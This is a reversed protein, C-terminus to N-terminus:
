KIWVFKDESYPIVKDEGFVDYAANKIPQHFWDDGILYGGPRL